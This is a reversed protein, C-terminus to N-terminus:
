LLPPAAQILPQPSLWPAPSHPDQTLALSPGRCGSNLLGTPFPCCLMSSHSTLHYSSHTHTRMHVHVYTDTDTHTQTYSTFCPSPCQTSPISLSLSLFNSM